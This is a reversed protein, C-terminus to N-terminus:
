MNGNCNCLNVVGAAGSAIGIPSMGVIIGAATSCLRLDSGLYVPGNVILASDTTYNATINIPGAVQAWFYEGTDVTAGTANIGYLGQTSVTISEVSVGDTGSVSDIMLLCSTGDTGLSVGAKSLRYVKQGDRYIAGPQQFDSTTSGIQTLAGAIRVEAM